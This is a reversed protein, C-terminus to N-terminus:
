QQPPAPPQQRELATLVRDLKGNLESIQKANQDSIARTETIQAQQQSAVNSQDGAYTLMTFVLGITAVVGGAVTTILTWTTPLASLRAGVAEFKSDIAQFRSEVTAQLSRVDARLEAVDARLESRVGDIKADIYDKETPMKAAEEIHQAAKPSRDAYRKKGASVTVAPSSITITPLAAHAVAAIQAPRVEVSKIDDPSIYFDSDADHDASGPTDSPARTYSEFLAAARRYADPENAGIFQVAHM